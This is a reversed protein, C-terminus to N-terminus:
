SRRRMARGIAAAGGLALLAWTSPEPVTTLTIFSTSGGPQVDPDNYLIEYTNLGLSFTSGDTLDKFHNGMTQSDKFDFLVFKEGLALLMDDIVGVNLTADSDINLEGGLIFQDSTMTTPNLYMTIVTNTSNLFLENSTTLSNQARTAADFTVASELRITSGSDGGIVSNTGFQATGATIGGRVTFDRNNTFTASGDMVFTSGPMDIFGRPGNVLVSRENLVMGSDSITLVSRNSLTTVAGATPFLVGGGGVRTEALGDVDDVLVLTSGPTTLDLTGARVAVGNAAVSSLGQATLTAVDIVAGSAATITSNDLTMGNIVDIRTNNSMALASNQLTLDHTRLKSQGILELTANNSFTMESGSGSTSGWRVNSTDLALTANNVNAYNPDYGFNLTESPPVAALNGSDKILFTSGAAVDLSTASGITGIWSSIQSSGSVNFYLRSPNYFKPTELGTLSSNALGLIMDGGNRAQIELQVAGPNASGTDFDVNNLFFNQVVFVRGDIPDIFEDTGLLSASVRNTSDSVFSTTTFVANISDGNFSMNQDVWLVGNNGTQFEIANYAPNTNPFVAGRITTVMNPLGTVYTTQANALPPASLFLIALAASAFAGASKFPKM